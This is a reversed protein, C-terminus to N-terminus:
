FGALDVKNAMQIIGQANIVAVANNKEDVQKLMATASGDAEDLFLTDNAATQEAEELKDAESGAVYCVIHTNVQALTALRKSSRPLQM